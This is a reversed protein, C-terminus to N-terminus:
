SLTILPQGAVVADGASVLIRSVTGSMSAMVPLSLGIVAKIWGPFPVTTGLIELEFPILLICYFLLM